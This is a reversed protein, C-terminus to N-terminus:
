HRLKGRFGKIYRFMFNALVMASTNRSVLERFVITLPFLPVTISKPVPLATLPKVCLPIGGSRPARM